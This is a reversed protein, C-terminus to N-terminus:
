TYKDTDSWDFIPQKLTPKGLKTEMRVPKRRPGSAITAVAIGHVAAKTTEIATQMMAETMDQMAMKQKYELRSQFYKSAYKRPKVELVM